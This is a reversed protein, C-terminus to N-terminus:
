IMDKLTTQQGLMKPWLKEKVNLAFYKVYKIKCKWCIIQYYMFAKQEVDVRDFFAFYFRM